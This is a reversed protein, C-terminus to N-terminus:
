LVDEMSKATPEVISTRTTSSYRREAFTQVGKGLFGAGNIVGIFGALQAGIDVIVGAKVCFIFWVLLVIYDMIIVSVLGFRMMSPTNPDGSTLQNFWNM